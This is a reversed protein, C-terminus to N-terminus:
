ETASGFSSYLIEFSTCLLVVLITVIENINYGQWRSQVGVERVRKQGRPLTSPQRCAAEGAPLQPLLAAM